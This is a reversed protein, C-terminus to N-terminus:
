GEQVIEIKNRSVFEFQQSNTIEERLKNSKSEDIVSLVLAYPQKEKRKEVKSLKKDLKPNATLQILVELVDSKLEKKTASMYHLLTARENKSNRWSSDSTSQGITIPDEKLKGEVIKPPPIVRLSATLSVLNYEDEINADVPPNYALSLVFKSKRGLLYKPLNFRLRHVKQSFDLEDCYVMTVRDSDSAFITEFNPIGLGHAQRIPSDTKTIGVQETFVTSHALMARMLNAYNGRVPLSDSLQDEIYEQLQLAQWSVLPTAQSNGLDKAFTKGTELGVVGYKNISRFDRVADDLHPADLYDGGEEVLEPKLIGFRSPGMRSFPSPYYKAPAMSENDTEYAVAGVALNNISDAPSAINVDYQDGDNLFIDRYALQKHVQHNGASIIFLVDYQNSLEDLTVTLDSIEDHDIARKEAIALNFVKIDTHRRVVEKVAGILDQIDNLTTITMGDILKDGMVQIDIFKGVPELTNIKGSAYLGLDHGFLARSAVFTGHTTNPKLPTRNLHHARLPNLLNHDVGSDIIGMTLRTIPQLVSSPDIKIRSPSRQIEYSPKQKIKRIYSFNESSLLAKIEYAKLKALYSMNSFFLDPDRLTVEGETNEDLIQHLKDYDFSDVDSRLEIICEISNDNSSELFANILRDVRKEIGTNRSEVSAVAYVERYTDRTRGTVKNGLSDLGSKAINYDAKNIIKKLRQFNAKEGSLTVSTGDDRSEIFELDAEEWLRSPKMTKSTANPKLKVEAYIHDSSTKDLLLGVQDRLERRTADFEPKTILEEEDWYKSWFHSPFGPKTDRLISKKPIFIGNGDM